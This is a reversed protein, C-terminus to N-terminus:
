IILSIWTDYEFLSPNSFANRSMLLISFMSIIFFMFNRFYFNRIKNILICAVIPEVIDFLYIARAYILEVDMFFSTLIIGVLYVKIIQLNLEKETRFSNYFIILCITM